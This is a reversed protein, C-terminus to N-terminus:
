NVKQPISSQQDANVPGANAQVETGIQRAQRILASYRGAAVSNRFGRQAHPRNRGALLSGLSACQPTSPVTKIKVSIM